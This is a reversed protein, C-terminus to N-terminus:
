KRKRAAAKPARKRPARPAVKTTDAGAQDNATGANPDAAPGSPQAGPKGTTDAGAADSPHRVARQNTSGPEFTTPPATDKGM